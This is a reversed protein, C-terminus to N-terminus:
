RALLFRFFNGDIAHRRRHCNACRVECKEMEIQLRETSWQKRCCNAIREVKKGKTHDFELVVPDREGCDVCPHQLLYTWVYKRNADYIRRAHLKNLERYREPHKEKWNRWGSM